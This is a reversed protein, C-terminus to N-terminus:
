VEIEEVPDDDLQQVAQEISKPKARKPKPPALQAACADLLGAVHTRYGQSPRRSRLREAADSMETPDPM